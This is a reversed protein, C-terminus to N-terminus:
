SNDFLLFCVISVCLLSSCSSSALILAVSSASFCFAAALPTEIAFPGADAEVEFPCAGPAESPFCAQPPFVWTECIPWNPTIHSYQLLVSAFCACM